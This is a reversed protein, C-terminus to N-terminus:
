PGALKPILKAGGSSENGSSGGLDILESSGPESIPVSEDKEDSDYTLKIKDDTDTDKKGAEEDSSDDNELFAEPANDLGGSYGAASADMGGADRRAPSSIVSTVMETATGAFSKVSNISNQPDPIPLMLLIQEIIPWGYYLMAVILALMIVNKMPGRNGFVM